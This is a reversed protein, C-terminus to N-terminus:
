GVYKLSIGAVKVAAGSAIHVSVKVCLLDGPTWIVGTNLATNSLTLNVLGGSGSGRTATCVLSASSNRYAEVIVSCGTGTEVKISFGPDDWMTFLTPVRWNFICVVDAGSPDSNDLLYYNEQGPAGVTSLEYGDVGPDGTHDPWVVGPLEVMFCETRAVRQFSPGELLTWYAEITGANEDTIEWSTSNTLITPLVIDEAAPADSALPLLVATLPLESFEAVGADVEIEFMIGGRVSSRFDDNTTICNAVQRLRVGSPIGAVGGFRLDVVSCILPTSGSRDDLELSAFPIHCVWRESTVTEAKSLYVTVTPLQDALRIMSRSM